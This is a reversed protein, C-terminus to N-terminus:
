QKWTNKNENWWRQANKIGDGYGCLGTCKPFGFDQGTFRELAHAAIAAVFSDDDFLFTAFFPVDKKSDLAEIASLIWCRTQPSPNTAKAKLTPVAEEAGLMQLALATQEIVGSDQENKLMRILNRTASVDHIDRLSEASNARVYNSKSNLARKLFPAADKFKVFGIGRIALWKTDDDKTERAIRLLAPGSEPYGMTIQLLITEKAARDHESQFRLLLTPLDQAVVPTLCTLTSLLIAAARIGLNSM